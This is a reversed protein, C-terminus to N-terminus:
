SALTHLTFVNFNLYFNLGVDTKSPLISAIILDEGIIWPLHYGTYGTDNNTYNSGTITYNEVIGPNLFGLFLYTM